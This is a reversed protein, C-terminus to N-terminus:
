LTITHVMTNIFHHKNMRSVIPYGLLNNIKHFPPLLYSTAAETESHVSNLYKTNRCALKNQRLILVSVLTATKHLIPMTM